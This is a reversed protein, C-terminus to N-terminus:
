GVDSAWLIEAGIELLGFREHEDLVESPTGEAAMFM